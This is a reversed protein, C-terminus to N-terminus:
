SGEGELPRDFALVIETTRDDVDFTERLEAREGPRLAKESGPFCSEGGGINTGDASKQAYRFCYNYLRVHGKNRYYMELSHGDYRASEIFFRGQDLTLKYPAVPKTPEGVAVAVRKEADARQKAEHLGGFFALWAVAGTALAWPILAFFFAGMGSSVKIETKDVM